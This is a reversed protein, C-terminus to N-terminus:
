WTLYGAYTELLGWPLPVKMLQYFFTHFVLTGAFAILAARRPHRDFWWTITFILIAMVFLFGLFEVTLIYFVIALLVPLLPLLARMGLLHDGGIATAPSPESTQTPTTNTATNPMTAPTTAPTTSTQTPTTNPTTNTAADPRTKPTTRGQIFQVVVLACGAIIFGFGVITPLFGPGYDIHKVSPMNWSFIVLGIGVAIALFGNMWDSQRM